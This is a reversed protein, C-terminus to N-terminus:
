RVEKKLTWRNKKSINHQRQVTLIHKVHRWSMVIFIRGDGDGGRRGATM